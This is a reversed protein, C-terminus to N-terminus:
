SKLFIIFRFINENETKNSINFVTQRIKRIKAGQLLYYLHKSNLFHWKSRVALNKNVSPYVASTSLVNSLPIDRDRDGRMKRCETIM